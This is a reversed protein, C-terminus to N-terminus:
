CGPFMCESGYDFGKVVVDNQSKVFLRASQTKIQANCAPLDHWIALREDGNLNESYDTWSPPSTSM